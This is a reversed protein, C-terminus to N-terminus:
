DSAEWRRPGPELWLRTMHFNYHVFHRQPLNGGLVETEGALRFEVLQEEIVMM